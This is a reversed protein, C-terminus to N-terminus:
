VWIVKGARVFYHSRCGNSLWVSPHLTPRKLRDVQLSWHPRIERLLPLEVRQGCGCPCIMAVSWPEGGETMLILDRAPMSDPLGDGEIVVLSRYPWAREKFQLWARLLWKIM